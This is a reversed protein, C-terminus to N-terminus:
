PDFVRKLEVRGTWSNSAAVPTYNGAQSPGTWTYIVRTDVTFGAAPEWVLNAAASWKNAAGIVQCTAPSCAIGTAANAGGDHLYAGTLGSWLTPSWFHKLSAFASWNTYGDTGGGVFSSGTGVSGNLRLEDGPAISDLKFTMGANVGWVTVLSSFGNDCLAGGPDKNNIQWWCDGVAPSRVPGAVGASLKGDWSGTSATLAAIIDPMSYSSGLSTGWRDRPDEAAIILGFGGMAWTLSIQDTSASGRFTDDGVYGGSYQYRSDTYGAMLAGLQLYAEDIKFLRDVDAYNTDLLVDRDAPDWNIDHPISTMGYEQQANESSAKMVVHGVVEGWDSQSRADVSVKAGTVFDWRAAHDTGYQAGDDFDGALGTGTGLTEVDRHNGNLTTDLSHFNIDFTVEGGIKLCTTTGPIYWYGTGFADCVRVYDVPEAITLDAAQAGGVVVFAAASGLLLTKLKM